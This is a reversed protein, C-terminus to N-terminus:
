VILRLKEEAIKMTIHSSKYRIEGDTHVWLPVDSRIEASKARYLYVGNFKVHRGTYAYPFIRFFDFQSVNDGACFDLLGDDDRADPCFKFGGGEYCHNMGAMFLCGSLTVTKENDFCATVPVRKTEAITHIAETIYALKGLHVKNLLEKTRSMEVEACIAADFGIGCSINFRRVIEHPDPKVRVQKQARDLEESETHFIVEGIDCLRENGSLIRDVQEELKGPMNLDKALDNGSGCPILGLRTHTFDQIGNVADNMSGDGGVIVITVDEGASSLERCIVETNKGNESRHVHYDCRGQLLKEVKKWAKVAHGSAPNIVFDIKM